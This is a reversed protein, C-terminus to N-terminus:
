LVKQLEVCREVDRYGLRENVANIAANVGANGTMLVTCAPHEARLRRHNCLKMLLGLARGRHDPLVLTGSQFGRHPAHDNLVAETLGVMAGDPALAAVTLERRGGRRSEENRTRVREETWVEPELDLEGLPMEELFAANIRCYDAIHEEPVRDTWEVLRYGAARSRAEAELADWTPETAVLDVVKIRDELAPRYGLARAFPLGSGEADLPAFAEVVATRRGDRRAREEAAGMAASGIGQRWRGPDVAIGVYAIHTNDLDPYGLYARGVMAGRDHVGLLVDRHGARGETYAARASEWPLHFDYPRTADDALKGIEWFRHLAGEDGRDM